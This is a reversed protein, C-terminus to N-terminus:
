LGPEVLYRSQPFPLLVGRVILRHTSTLKPTCTTLAVKPKDIRPMPLTANASQIEKSEVSYVFRAELTELIILDGKELEDIHDFPSSFTISHGAIACWGVVGPNATKPYHGPGERLVSTTIGEQVIQEIEIKPIIIKTPPFPGKGGLPTRDSNPGSPARSTKVHQKVLRDHEKLLANQKYKGYFMTFVPYAAILIGVLIFLAGLKIRLSKNSAM